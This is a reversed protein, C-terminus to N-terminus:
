ITPSMDAPANGFLSASGMCLIHVIILSLAPADFRPFVALDAIGQETIIVKVGHESRDVHSSMPVVTSDTAKKLLRRLWLSQCIRTANLIVAGGIGNM